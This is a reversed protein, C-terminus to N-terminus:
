TSGIDCTHATAVAVIARGPNAGRVEATILGGPASDVGMRRGQRAHVPWAVSHWHRGECIIVPAPQHGPWAVACDVFGPLVAEWEVVPPGVQLPQRGRM